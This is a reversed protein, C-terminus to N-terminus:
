PLANLVTKLKATANKAVQYVAMGAEGIPVLVRDAHATDLISGKPFGNKGISASLSRIADGAAERTAFIGREVARDVAHPLNSNVAKEVAPLLDCLGANHVWAGEFGVFYTHFDGVEFNYTHHRVRYRAVSKVTLLGGDLAMLRDGPKLQGAAIWHKGDAMFPHELTVGLSEAKGAANVFTLRVVKKEGNRVLRLVPKFATEGTTEDRAVVLDGVKLKEIAVPGDKTQVM